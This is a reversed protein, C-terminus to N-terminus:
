DLVQCFVGTEEVDRRVTEPLLYRLSRGSRARARIDSSSIDLASIAVVRVAGGARHRASEGDPALEFGDRLGPPLWDALGGPTGPRNMVAFDALGLVAEPDRWSGMEVFADSGILFTPRDPAAEAALTHLTDVTYSAGGRRLELDCAELRPNDASAAVVWALRQEAPALHDDASAEKHPPQASPVLLVRTLGLAEAVEEAARLHGLHVPNFTGGLVGFQTM